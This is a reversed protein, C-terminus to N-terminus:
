NNYHRQRQKSHRKSLQEKQEDTLIAGVAQSHNLKALHLDKQYSGYEIALANMQETDMKGSNRLETEKTRLERMNERTIKSQERFAKRLEAMKEKQDASLNLEKMPHHSFHKNRRFEARGKEMYHNVKSHNREHMHMRGHFGNRKQHGFFLFGAIFLNLAILISIGITTFSINKM